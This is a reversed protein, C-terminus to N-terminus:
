AKGLPATGGQELSDAYSVYAMLTPTIKYMLAANPSLGQQNDEEIKKGDAGYNRTQLWSESLYLM